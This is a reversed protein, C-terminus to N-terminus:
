HTRSASTSIDYRRPRFGERFMADAGELAKWGLPGLRGISEFKEAKNANDHLGALGRLKNSFSTSRGLRLIDM